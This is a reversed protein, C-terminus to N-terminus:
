YYEDKGGGGGGDYYYNDGIGGGDRVNDERRRVGGLGTEGNTEEDTRTEDQIIDTLKKISDQVTKKDSAAQLEAIKMDAAKKDRLAADESDKQRASVETEQRKELNDLILEAEDIEDNAQDMKQTLWDVMEVSDLEKNSKEGYYCHKAMVDDKAAYAKNLKMQLIRQTYIGKDRYRKLERISETLVTASANRGHLAAQEAMEERTIEKM